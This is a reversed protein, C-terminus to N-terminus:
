WFQVLTIEPYGRVSAARLSGSCDVSVAMLCDFYFAVALVKDKM